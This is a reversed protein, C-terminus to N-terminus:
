FNVPTVQVNTQIVSYYETNPDYMADIRIFKNWAHVFLDMDDSISMAIETQWNRLQQSKMIDFMERIKNESVDNRNTVYVYDSIKYWFDENNNLIYNFFNEANKASVLKETSQRSDVIKKLDGKIISSIYTGYREAENINPTFYIGVGELNNSDNHMMWKPNLFTTKFDGGHYLIEQLDTLKM